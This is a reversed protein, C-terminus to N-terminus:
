LSGSHRRIGLRRRWTGSCLEDGFVETTHRSDSIQAEGGKLVGCYESGHLGRGHGVSMNGEEVIRSSVPTNEPDGVLGPPLNRLKRRAVVAALRRESVTTSNLVYQVTYQYPHGGGAARCCRAKRPGGLKEYNKWATSFSALGFPVAPTITTNGEEIAKRRRKADYKHVGRQRREGDCREDPDWTTLPLPANPFPPGRGSQRVRATTDSRIIRRALCKLHLV